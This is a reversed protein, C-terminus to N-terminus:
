DSKGFESSQYPRGKIRWDLGTARHRQYLSPLYLVSIVRRPRGRAENGAVGRRGKMAVVGDGVVLEDEDEGGDGYPLGSRGEVRRRCGCADTGFDLWRGCLFEGLAFSVLEGMFVDEWGVECDRGALVDGHVGAARGLVAPRWEGQAAIKLEMGRRVPEGIGYVRRLGEM